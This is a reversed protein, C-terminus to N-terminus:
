PTPTYISLITFTVPNYTKPKDRREIVKCPSINNDIKKADDM